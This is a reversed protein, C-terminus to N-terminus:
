PWGSPMPCAFAKMSPFRAAVQHAPCLGPIYYVPNGATGLVPSREHKLKNKECRFQNVRRHYRNIDLRDHSTADTSRNSRWEQRVASAHSPKEDSLRCLSLIGSCSEPPERKHFRDIAPGSPRSRRRKRALKILCQKSGIRANSQMGLGPTSEPQEILCKWALLVLHDQQHAQNAAEM